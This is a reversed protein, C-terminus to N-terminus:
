TGNKVAKLIRKIFFLVIKEDNSYQHYEEGIETLLAAELEDGRKGQLIVKMGDLGLSSLYKLDPCDIASKITHVMESYIKEIKTADTKEALRIGLYYNEKSLEEVVETLPENPFAYAYIICDLLPAYGGGDKNTGLQRFIAEVRGLAEREKDTRERM